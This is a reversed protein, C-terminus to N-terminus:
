EAEPKCPYVHYENICYDEETGNHKCYKRVVGNVEVRDNMKISPLQKLIDESIWVHDLHENTGQIEVNTLLTIADYFYIPNVIRKEAHAIDYDDNTEIQDKKDKKTPRIESVTGYVTIEKGYYKRLICARDDKREEANNM